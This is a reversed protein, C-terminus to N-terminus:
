DPRSCRSCRTCFPPMASGWSDSPACCSDRPTRDTAIARRGLRGLPNLGTAVRHHPERMLSPNALHVEAPLKTPDLHPLLRLCGYGGRACVVASTSPDRFAATLAEARECDDGALYRLGDVRHPVDVEVVQM